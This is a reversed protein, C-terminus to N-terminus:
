PAKKLAALKQESVRLKQVNQALTKQISLKMATSSERIQIRIKERELLSPTPVQGAILYTTKTKLLSGDYTKIMDTETKIKKQLEAVENSLRKVETTITPSSM